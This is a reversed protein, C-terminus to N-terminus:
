ADFRMALVQTDAVIDTSPDFSSPTTNATITVNGSYAPEGTVGNLLSGSTATTQIFVIETTSNSHTAIYYNLNSKINWPTSLTHTFLGTGSITATTENYLRNGLEDFLALDITGAASVTSVDLTITTAIINGPANILAVPMETNDSLQIGSSLSRGGSVPFAVFSQLESTAESTSYLITVTVSGQTPVGEPIVVVPNPNTTFDFSTNDGDTTGTLVAIATADVQGGIITGANVERVTLTSTADFEDTIQYVVGVPVADEPLDNTFTAVGDGGVNAFDAFGFTESLNSLGGGSGGGSVFNNVETQFSNNTTLTTIFYDNDILEDIFTTSNAIHIELNDATIAKARGGDSVDGVIILDGSAVDTLVDLGTSKEDSTYAPM